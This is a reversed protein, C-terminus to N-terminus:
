CPRAGQKEPTQEDLAAVVREMGMSRSGKVLCALDGPERTQLDAKLAAILLTMDDFASGGSGFAEASISALSGFAFVRDIGLDRATEGVAAHEAEAQDALEAMDGIVLWREGTQNALVQMAARMSAPNANYSDDILLWGGPQLRQQLRGPEAAADALGAVISNLEIDLAIAAGTAALANLQNHKGPLNLGLEFDGLPTEVRNNEVLRVDAQEHEGFSIVRAPRAQNLWFHFFRDDRNIIATNGAALSVFLEGKTGAVGEVSGLGKLHAASANTVVGIQPKALEALYAIDGPKACGMELIAFRHEASLEALTLPLGIENNYNGPTALLASAPLTNQELHKLVISALMNKVTTKGNSGTIGVASLDLRERWAGALRGMAVLVDAVQIQSLPSEVPWQVLAAAADAQAAADVFRHGDVREGPLAVYLNDRRVKRSDQTMGVFRHEADGSPGCHLQGQVIQAAQHLAFTIM